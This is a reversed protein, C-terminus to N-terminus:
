LESSATKEFDVEFGDFGQGTASSGELCSCIQHHRFIDSFYSHRLGTVELLEAFDFFTVRDDTQAFEPELIVAPIDVITMWIRNM